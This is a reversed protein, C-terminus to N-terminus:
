PKYNQYFRKLLKTGPPNVPGSGARHGKRECGKARLPRKSIRSRLPARLKGVMAAGFLAQLDKLSV